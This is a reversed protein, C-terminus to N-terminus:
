RVAGLPQDGAMPYWKRLVLGVMIGMAASGGGGSLPGILTRHWIM